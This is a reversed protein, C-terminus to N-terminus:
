SVLSFWRSELGKRQNHTFWIFCLNCTVVKPGPDVPLQTTMKDMDINGLVEFAEKFSLDNKEMTGYVCNKCNVSSEGVLPHPKRKTEANKKVKISNGNIWQVLRDIEM